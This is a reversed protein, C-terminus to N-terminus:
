RNFTNVRDTLVETASLTETCDTVFNIDEKSHHSFLYKM